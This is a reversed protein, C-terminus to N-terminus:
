VVRLLYARKFFFFFTDISFASSLFHLKFVCVWGNWVLAVGICAPMLLGMLLFPAFSSVRIVNPPVLGERLRPGVRPIVQAM